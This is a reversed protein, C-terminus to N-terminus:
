AAARIGEATYVSDEEALAPEGVRLLLENERRAAAAHGRKGLARALDSRAQGNGLPLWHAQEMRKKGAEAKGAKVLAWGSLYLALPPGAEEHPVVGRAQAKVAERHAELYAGAAREWERKGALLDGLRV